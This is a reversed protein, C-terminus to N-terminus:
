RSSGIAATSPRTEAFIRISGTTFIPGTALEPEDRHRAIPMAADDDGVGAVGSSVESYGDAGPAASRWAAGPSCSGGSSGDMASFCAIDYSGDAKVGYIYSNDEKVTM